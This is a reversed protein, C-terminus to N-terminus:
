VLKWWTRDCVEVFRRQFGAYDKGYQIKPLTQFANFFHEAKYSAM